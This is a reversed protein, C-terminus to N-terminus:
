YLVPGAFNAETDVNTCICTMCLALQLEDGAYQRKIASALLDGHASAFRM